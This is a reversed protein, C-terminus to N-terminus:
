PPCNSFRSFAVLLNNTATGIAKNNIKTNRCKANLDKFSAIRTNVATGKAVTPPTNKNHILPIGKLTEAPIPKIANNPIATRFPITRISCKFSSFLLDLIVSLSNIIVPDFSLNLGTRKVADAAAM